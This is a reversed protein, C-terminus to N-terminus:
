STRGKTVVDAAERRERVSWEGLLRRWVGASSRAILFELEEDDTDTLRLVELKVLLRGRAMRDATVIKRIRSPPIQITHGEIGQFTLVDDRWALLGPIREFRGTVLEARTLLKLAKGERAMTAKALRDQAKGILLRPVLFVASLIAVAGLLIWGLTTM